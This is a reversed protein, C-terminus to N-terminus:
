KPAPARSVRAELVRKLNILANRSQIRLALRTLNADLWRWPLNRSSYLLARRFVTGKGNPAVRYIVRADGQPTITDIAWREGPAYDVVTWEAAIPRPWFDIHEVVTEGLLLPRDPVQDVGKTAPHWLSWLTPTTVFDFVEAPTMAIDIATDVRHDLRRDPDDIHPAKM